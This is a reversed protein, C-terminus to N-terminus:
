CPAVFMFAHPVHMCLLFNSKKCCNDEDSSDDCDAEGDCTWDEAICKGSSTCEFENEACAEVKVVTLYFRTNNGNLPQECVNKCYLLVYYNYHRYIILKYM